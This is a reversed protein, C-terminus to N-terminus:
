WQDFIAYLVNSCKELKNPARWIVEYNM